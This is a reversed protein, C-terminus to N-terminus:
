CIETPMLLQKVFMGKDDVCWCQKKRCIKDTTSYSGDKNCIPKWFKYSNKVKNRSLFKRQHSQCPQKAKLFKKPLIKTRKIQKKNMRKTKRSHKRKKGKNIKHISKMKEGIAIGM